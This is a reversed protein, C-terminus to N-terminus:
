LYTYIECKSAKQSNQKAVYLIHSYISVYQIYNDQRLFYGLWIQILWYKDIHMSTGYVTSTENSIQYKWPSRMWSFNNQMSYESLGTTDNEQFQTLMGYYAMIYNAM